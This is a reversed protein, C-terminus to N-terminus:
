YMAFAILGMLVVVAVVGLKVLKRRQERKRARFRAEVEPPVVNLVASDIVAEEKVLRQVQVEVRPEFPDDWSAAETSREAPDEWQAEAAKSYAGFRAPPGDDRLDSLATSVPAGIDEGLAGGCSPCRQGHRLAEDM